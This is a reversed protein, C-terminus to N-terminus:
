RQGQAEALAGRCSPSLRSQNEALCALARGGGPRVGQCYARFDGGCSRRMLAAQERMPMAPAATAGHPAPQSAQAPPGASGGGVVAGVASQCQPSLSAMHGQLCQLAARGGTPVGSCYSQYDTRCSQRIAGVQAESPQQAAATGCVASLLVAILFKAANLLMVRKMLEGTQGGLMDGGSVGAAAPDVEAALGEAAAAL